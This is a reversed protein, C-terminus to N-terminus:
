ATMFFPASWPFTMQRSMYSAPFAFSQFIRRAEQIFIVLGQSKAQLSLFKKESAVMVYLTLSAITEKAKTHTSIPTM